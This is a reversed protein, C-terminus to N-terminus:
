WTLSVIPMSIDLEDQFCELTMNPSPSHTSAKRAWL